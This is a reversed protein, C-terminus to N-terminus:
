FFCGLQSLGCGNGPRKSAYLAKKLRLVQSKEWILEAGDSSFKTQCKLSGKEQGDPESVSARCSAQAKIDGAQKKMHITEWAHDSHWRQASCLFYMPVGPIWQQLTFFLESNWSHFPLVHSMLLPPLFFDLSLFVALSPPYSLPLHVRPQQHFWSNGTKETFRPKILFEKHVQLASLQIPFNSLEQTFM